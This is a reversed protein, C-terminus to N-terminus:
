YRAILTGAPTGEPVPAASALVLLGGSFNKMTMVGTNSISGVVTGAGGGTVVQFADGSVPASTKLGNRFWKM